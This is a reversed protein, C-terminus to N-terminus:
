KVTALATGWIRQIKKEQVFFVAKLRDRQWEPRLPVRLTLEGGNKAPGLLVLRRVVADHHLTRGNNEGRKVVTSLGDETIALGAELTEKLADAPLDAITLSAVLTDAELSVRPTLRAHPMKIAQEIAKKAARADSGVFQYRGDVVVQPTYIEEGFRQGYSQQRATAVALGAADKWGLDDWYTVHLGLPVITAGPIPQERLM